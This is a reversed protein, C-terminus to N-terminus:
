SAASRAAKSCRRTSVAPRRATPSRSARRKTLVDGRRQLVAAAYNSSSGSGPRFEVVYEGTAPRLHHIQRRQRQERLRQRIRREDQARLGPHRRGRSEDHRRHRDRHRQRRHGDRRRHGSTTGGITVTVSDAEAYTPRNNYYQPALGSVGYFYVKYKGTELGTLTYEGASNTYRATPHLLIRATEDRLRVRERDASRDRRQDGHRQDNRRRADRRQHRIQRERRTVSVHNAESYDAKENYYQTVYNQGAGYFTVIYNGTALGTITYEGSANTNACPYYPYETGEARRSACAEVNQLAAKSAANTVTGSITGGEKLAANIGSTTSGVTVSVPNAESLLQGQRQLVAPHLEHRLHLVTVTYSGTPLRTITYEGSANTYPVSARDTRERVGRRRRDPSEDRREHGHRHDQRSGATRRQDREDHQREYRQGSRSRVAIAKGHYYQTM